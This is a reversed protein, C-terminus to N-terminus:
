GIIVTMKFGVNADIWFLVFLAKQNIRCCLVFLIDYPCANEYFQPVIFEKASVQSITIKKVKISVHRLNNM